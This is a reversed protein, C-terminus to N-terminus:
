EILDKIGELGSEYIGTVSQLAAEDNFDTPPDKDQHATQFEGRWVVNTTDDGNDIVTFIASYNSVPVVSNDTKTIAYQYSMQDFEFRQLEEHIEPGGNGGITLVRTAGPTNGGRGDCNVVAPHWEAIACFDSVLDWVMAAPANVTIEKQVQQRPVDEAILLTPILVLLAAVPFRHLLSITNRSVVTM